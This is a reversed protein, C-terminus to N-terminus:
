HKGRMEKNILETASSSECPNILVEVQSPLYKKGKEVRKIGQHWGTDGYPFLLPYQLPEYCGFYYQVRHSSGSHSYVIIDWSSHDRSSDDEVWIAVVQSASPTYVRQDLTADSRIHIRLDKLTPINKLSRFLACYPNLKLIDIIQTLISPNLRDSNYVRNRVEHKTDYFYLQLYSPHDDLPLLDNIYHYM